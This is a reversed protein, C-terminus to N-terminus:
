REEDKTCEAVKGLTMLMFSSKDGSGFLCLAQETCLLFNSRGSQENVFGKQKKNGKKLFFSGPKM